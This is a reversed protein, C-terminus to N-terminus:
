CKTRSVRPQESYIELFLGDGLFTGGTENKECNDENAALKGENKKQPKQM